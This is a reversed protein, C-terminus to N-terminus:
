RYPLMRLYASILQDGWVLAVWAAPALFTGYPLSYQMNKKKILILAIGVMAGAFSALILTLLTKQWGLFVGILLMMTVDGMGLGEKKRLLYYAGYIFLLFGAGVAAGILAKFFTLDPRFFSYALGLITGPLTIRDPLLKHYFDILGLAILASSFLCAAFFHLSLAYKGYLILCVTPTLWEVLFYSFPIRQRCHRCRGRLLLYSVVPINDYFKIRNKCSPCTSPPHLLSMRRPVRYIVVNLFSGWALGFLALIIIKEL